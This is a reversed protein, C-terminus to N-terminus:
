DLSPPDYRLLEIFIIPESSPDRDPELSLSPKSNSLFDLESNESNILDVGRSIKTAPFNLHQYM